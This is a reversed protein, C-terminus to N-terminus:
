PNTNPYLQKYVTKRNTRVIDLSQILKLVTM